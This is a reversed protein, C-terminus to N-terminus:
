LKIGLKADSHSHLNSGPSTGWSTQWTGVAPVPEELWCDGDWEGHCQQCLMFAPPRKTLRHRPCPPCGIKRPHHRALACRLLTVKISVHVWCNPAAFYFYWGSLDQCTTMDHSKHQGYITTNQVCATHTHIHKETWLIRAVDQASSGPYVSLSASIRLNDMPRHEKKNSARVRRIHVSKSIAQHVFIPYIVQNMHWPLHASPVCHKHLSASRIRRPDQCSSSRTAPSHLSPNM